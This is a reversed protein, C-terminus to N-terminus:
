SFITQCELFDSIEGPPLPHCFYYGQGEDCGMLVADELADQAIQRLEELNERMTKLKETCAIVTGDPASPANAKAKSHTYLLM